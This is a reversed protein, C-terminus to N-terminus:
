WEDLSLLYTQLNVQRHSICLKKRINKRHFNVANISVRLQEAIEKTRLGSKILLAIQLEQPTLSVRMMRTRSLLPSAAGDLNDRLQEVFFRQTESLETSMLRDLYPAALRKLNDAVAARMEAPMDAHMDTRMRAATDSAPQTSGTLGDTEPATKDTPGPFTDNIYPQVSRDSPKEPKPPAADMAQRPTAAMPSPGAPSDLRFHLLSHAFVEAIRSVVELDSDDYADSSNALCIQGHLIEDSIVPVSLFRHIPFHSKPFGVAAPHSEPCNTYFAKRSNLAHGWLAPYKGSSDAPFIIGKMGTPLRCSDGILGTLTHCVNHRTVPDIVSVYGIASETASKAYNLIINAIGATSYGSTILSYSLDAIVDDDPTWERRM